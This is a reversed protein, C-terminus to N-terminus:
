YRGDKELSLKDLPLMEEKFYLGVDEYFDRHNGKLALVYDGGEKIITKAIEKQTGMADITVICGKIDLLKLLAPIATIENSKEETAIEGLV